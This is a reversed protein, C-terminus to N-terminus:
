FSTTVDCDWSIHQSFQIPGENGCKIQVITVVTTQPFIEGATEETLYVKAQIDNYSIAAKTTKNSRKKLGQLICELEFKLWPPRSFYFIINIFYNM